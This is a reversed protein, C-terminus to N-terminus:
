KTTRARLGDLRPEAPRGRADARSTRTPGPALGTEETSLLFVASYRLLDGLEVGPFARPCLANGERPKRGLHARGKKFRGRSARSADGCVLGSSELCAAFRAPRSNPRRGECVQFEVSLKPDFAAAAKALGQKNAEHQGLNLDAQRDIVVYLIRTRKTLKLELRNAGPTAVLSGKAELYLSTSSAFSAAYTTGEVVRFLHAAADLTELPPPDLTVQGLDYLKVPSNDDPDLGVVELTAVPLLLVNAEVQRSKPQLTAKSVVASTSGLADISGAPRRTRVEKITYTGFPV